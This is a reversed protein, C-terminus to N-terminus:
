QDPKHQEVMGLDVLIQYAREEVSSIAAYKTSLTEEEAPPKPQMRARAYREGKLPLISSRAEPSGDDVDSSSGREELSEDNDGGPSHETAIVSSASNTSSQPSLVEGMSPSALIRKEQRDVSSALKFM